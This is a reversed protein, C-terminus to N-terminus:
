KEKEQAAKKEKQALYRERRKPDADKKPRRGGKKANERSAARKAKSTVSGRRRAMESAIASQGVLDVVLEAVSMERGGAVLSAGDRSNKIGSSDEFPLKDQPVQMILGSSIEIQLNTGAARVSVVVPEPANKM